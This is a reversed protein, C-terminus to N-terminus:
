PAYCRSIRASLSAAVCPTYHPSHPYWGTTIVTLLNSLLLQQVRSLKNEELPKPHFHFQLHNHLCCQLWSLFLPLLKFFSTLVQWAACQLENTQKIELKWTLSNRCIYQFSQFNYMFPTMSSFSSSSFALLHHSPTTPPIITPPIPFFFVCRSILSSWVGNSVGAEM